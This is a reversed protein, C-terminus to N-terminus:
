VGAPQPASSRPTEFGEPAQDQRTRGSPWWFWRGLLAAGAPVVLTRVVFTDIVLGMGIVFGFEKLTSVSGAMMAFMSSAFILGAATIVGGTATIAKAIGLRSGDAAEERIRSALLLNYDAGVAVLLIFALSPVSWELPEGFGVQWVLMGLGVASGYSLAVTALLFAAAVLSRLLLLLILFVTLLAVLAVLDFDAHSLHDLDANFAAVGTTSVVSGELDTGRLGTEAARRVADSRAEAGEAYADTGGVVIMRAVHGDASLFLGSSVAFRPDKLARPPLYFGGAAPNAAAKGTQELYGAAQHLGGQLQGVSASVTETGDAVQGSGDAVQGAGDALLGLQQAMQQQGASIRDAGAQAQDLGAEIRALADHLNTSGDALQRAARGARLLGPLLQDREGVYIQGIGDRARACVPDLGCTLSQTALAHHALGLGDVALRTQAYATQLGDALADAGARLQASGELTRGSGAALDSLGDALQRQGDLLRTAGDVAQGAGDAVRVAGDRLQGAGAALQDAGQTGAALRDHARDLRDGVLGAQYGLSGQRIPVGLPRTVSRVSAVGPTRAIAAADQELVALDRPNRLDHDATIVVYDPLVQALPYHAALLAYGENSETTAPQVSREDYTLKLTPYLAALLVLPLLGAVLVRGPRAVVIAAVRRWGVGRRGPKPDLWGLPGVLALLAPTMTLSLALTVAVGAAIAPGTTRFIGLSALLMAASALIVTLASGVIVGSVKQSALTAAERAAMGQRRNEQFRSIIFIAYDTGAGLVVATLFSATFTSVAFVHLGLFATVGRAAALAVGISALALATVAISRYILLLVLIILGVSVATITILSHEVQGAMDAITAPPGTMEVHLGPPVQRHVVARVSEIQALSNPAGVSGPLGVQLYLAEGDRSTLARALNDQRVDQVSTVAPDAELRSVLRHMFARDPRTLGGDRALVVLVQARADPDGFATNMRALAQAAPASEPVVPTSDRAVVEELQPVAVNVVGVIALWGLVVWVARRVAVDALGRLLRGSEHAM